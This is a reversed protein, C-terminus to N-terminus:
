KQIESKSKKSQVGNRDFLSKITRAVNEKSSSIKGLKGKKQLSNSIITNVSLIGKLMGQEDTVPLRSIKNIRMERLAKKLNDETKVFHLKSNLIVDKVRKELFNHDTSSALTLCIDRDTIIGIVKKSKDVVPLAVFNHDKMLKAASRLKTEENCYIVTDSTM